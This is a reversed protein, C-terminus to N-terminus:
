AGVGLVVAEPDRLLPEFALEAAGVLVDDDLISPALEIPDLQAVVSTGLARSLPGEFRSVVGALLGSLIIRDPALTNALSILGTQLHKVVDAFVTDDCESELAHRLEAATAHPERGLARAIARGDIFLELCGHAGCSCAPGDPEVLLHGAQLSHDSRGAQEDAVILASGVGVRQGSLFLLRQAGRGAGWRFEALAALTADHAIQLPLGAPLWRELAHIMEVDRWGIPLLAQAYGTQQNFIGPVSLGVGVVPLPSDDIAERLFGGLIELTRAPTEAAVDFRREARFRTAHGLDIIALAIGDRGLVGAVVGAGSSRPALFSSPRGRTGPPVPPSADLLGLRGLDEVARGAASRAVGAIATADSRTMAGQMFLAALLRGTATSGLIPTTM